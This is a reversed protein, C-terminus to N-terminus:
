KNKLKEKHEAIIRRLYQKCGEPLEKIKDLHDAYANRGKYPSPADWISKAYLKTEDINEDTAGDTENKTMEPINVEGREPKGDAPMTEPEAKAKEDKEAKERLEKDRAIDKAIDSEISRAREIMEYLSDVQETSFTSLIAGQSKLMKEAENPGIATLWKKLEEVTRKFAKNITATAEDTNEQKEPQKASQGDIIETDQSTMLMHEYKDQIVALIARDFARKEVIIDKYGEKFNGSDGEGKEVAIKGPEALVEFLAIVNSPRSQFAVIDPDYVNADTTTIEVVYRKEGPLWAACAWVIHQTLDGPVDSKEHRMRATYYRINAKSQIMEVGSHHIIWKKSKDHLWFHHRGLGYDEALRKYFPSMEM